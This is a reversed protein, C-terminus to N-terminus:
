RVFREVWLPRQLKGCNRRYGVILDAFAKEDLLKGVLPRPSKASTNLAFVPMRKHPNKM